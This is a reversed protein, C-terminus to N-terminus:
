GRPHSGLPVRIIATRATGATCTTARVGDGLSLVFGAEQWESPLPRVEYVLVQGFFLKRYFHQDISSKELHGM